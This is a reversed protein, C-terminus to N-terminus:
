DIKSYKYLKKVQLSVVGKMMMSMVKPPFYGKFDIQEFETYDWCNPIHKNRRIYANMQQKIRYVGNQPPYKDNKVSQLGIYWSDNSLDKIMIQIVDDRDSIMPIQFKIYYQKTEDDITEIEFSENIYADKLLQLEPKFKMEIIKKPDVDMLTADLRM